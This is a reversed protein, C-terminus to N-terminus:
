VTSSCLDTPSQGPPSGPLPRRVMRKRGVIDALAGFGVQGVVTGASTAVKIATDAESTITGGFYVIGLMSTILGITFIDYQFQNNSHFVGRV